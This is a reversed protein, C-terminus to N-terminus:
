PKVGYGYVWMKYTGIKVDSFGARILYAELEQPTSSKSINAPRQLPHYAANELFFTWGQDDLLNFNDIYIRGGQKLCRFSDKCYSYREWEDLHMFVITSYVLDFSNSEIGKLNYGNLEFTDINETDSLKKHLHGLMNSSVDAGVWKKCMPALINGVRGVGAGIELIKDEQKVGVTPKLILEVFRRPSSEWREDQSTYGAIANEAQNIDISESNWVEKYESRTLKAEDVLDHMNEASEATSETDSIILRIKLKPRSIISKEDIFHHFGVISDAIEVKEQGLAKVVDPREKNLPLNIRTENNFVAVVKVISHESSFAWGSIEIPGPYRKTDAIPKDIHYYLM